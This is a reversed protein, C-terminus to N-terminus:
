RARRGARRRVVIRQKAAITERVRRRVDEEADSLPTRPMTAGIDQEGIVGSSENDELGGSGERAFAPDDDMRELNYYTVNDAWQEESAVYLRTREDIREDPDTEYYFLAMGDTRAITYYALREPLTNMRRGKWRMGPRYRPAQMDARALKYYEVAKVVGKGAVEVDYLWQDGTIRPKREKVIRGKMGRAVDARAVDQAFRVVDGLHYPSETFTPSSLVQYDVANLVAEWTDTFIPLHRGYFERGLYSGHYRAYQENPNLELRWKEIWAGNSEIFTRLDEPTRGGFAILTSTPTGSLEAYYPLGSPLTWGEVRQNVLSLRSHRRVEEGEETMTHEAILSVAGAEGTEEVQHMADTNLRESEGKIIASLAMFKTALIASLWTDIGTNSTFIFHVNSRSKTNARVIRGIAQMVHIYSLPPTVIIMERPNTGATDDLSLGTGGSTITGILIRREGSQFQRVNELRRYTEYEGSAGAIVGVADEGYRKTLTDVLIRVAGPKVDGTARRAQTGEEGTHVFVIVQRGRRMADDVLSVAMPLKYPELEEMQRSFISVVDEFERGRDDTYTYAAQVQDLVDLAANPAEFRHFHVDLNRLELERRLMHGDETLMDFATSMAAVARRMYDISGRSSRKRWGSLRILIGDKNRVAPEWVYGVDNMLRSFQSDDVFLGCKKLYLIDTPKDAPTATVYLVRPCYNIIALGLLARRSSTESGDGANKLKHAEDFVVLPTDKAFEKIAETIFGTYADQAERLRVHVPHDRNYYLALARLREEKATKYGEPERRRTRPNKPFMRDLDDLADRRAAAHEREVVLLEKKAADVHVLLDGGERYQSLTHYTAINIGPRLPTAFSHRWVSVTADGADYLGTYNRPRTPIQEAGASAAEPTAFGIKRADEFFATEMVRDDATVILVPKGTTRYYHEAVLLCQLTKGVGTGDALLFGGIRDLSEIALNAGEIVHAQMFPLSSYQAPIVNTDARKTLRENATIIRPKVFGRDTEETAVITGSPTELAKMTSRYDDGESRARAQVQEPKTMVLVVFNLLTKREMSARLERSDVHIADQAGHAKAWQQFSISERSTGSMTREPLVAILRGGPRLFEYARRVHAMGVGRDFPPNMVVADYRSAYQPDIVAINQKTGTVSQVGFSWFDTGVVRYGKLELLERRMDGLEVVDVQCEPCAAMIVDAIDGRGASPELIRMGPTMPLNPLIYREVIGPPTPYFQESKSAEAAATEMLHGVRFQREAETMVGGGHKFRRRSEERVYEEEEETLKGAKLRVVMAREWETLPKPATREMVKLRGEAAGTMEAIIKSRTRRVYVDFPLSAGVAYSGPAVPLESVPRREPAPPLDSAPVGEPTPPLENADPAKSRRSQAKGCDQGAAKTAAAATARYNVKLSKALKQFSAELVPVVADDIRGRCRALVFLEIVQRYKGQLRALTEPDALM